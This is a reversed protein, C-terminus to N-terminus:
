HMNTNKEASLLVAEWRQHCAKINTILLSGRKQKDNRSKAKKLAVGEEKM